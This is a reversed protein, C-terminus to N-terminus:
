WARQLRTDEANDTRDQKPRRRDGLVKPVRMQLSNKGVFDPMHPPPVIQGGRYMHCHFRDEPKMGQDPPQSGAQDLLPFSGAIFFYQPQAIRRLITRMM